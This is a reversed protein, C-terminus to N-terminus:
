LNPKRAVRPSPVLLDNPLMIGTLGSMKFRSGEPLDCNISLTVSLTNNAGPILHSQAIALTTFEPRVVKLIASGESIGYANDQSKDMSVIRVPASMGGDILSIISAGVKVDPTVQEETPNRLQFYFVYIQTSQLTTQLSM